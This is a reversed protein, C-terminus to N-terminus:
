LKSDAMREAEHPFLGGPANYRQYTELWLEPWAEKLKESNDTDAKHIAAMLLAYFPPDAALIEKAALYEHYSM